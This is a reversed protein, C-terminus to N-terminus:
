KRNRDEPPLSLGTSSRLSAPTSRVLISAKLVQMAEKELASSSNSDRSQGAAPLGRPCDDLSIGAGGNAQPEDFLPSGGSGFDLNTEAGGNAKTVDFM